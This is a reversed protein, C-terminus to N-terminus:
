TNRTIAAAIAEYFSSKRVGFAGARSWGGGFRLASSLPCASTLLLIFPLFLKFISGPRNSPTANAPGAKAWLAVWDIFFAPFEASFRYTVRPVTGLSGDLVRVDRGLHLHGQM